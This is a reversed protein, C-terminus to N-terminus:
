YILIMDFCKTSDLFLPYIASVSAEKIDNNV